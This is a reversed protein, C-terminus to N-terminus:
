RTSENVTVTMVGPLPLPAVGGLVINSAPVTIVRAVGVVDDVWTAIDTGTITGWWDWKMPDLRKELEEVVAAQVDAHNTGPDAEVTVTIGVTTYTPDIVHVSISGMVQAQLEAQIEEKIYEPLAYGTTDTVALSIHGIANTATGADYNNVAFARGVDERTIVADEFQEAYVLARVQRSLMARSREDFSANTEVPEGGRTRMSLEVSQIHMHYNVTQLPIGIPLDNYITGPEAAEIWAEGVVSESTIITTTETTFFDLAGSYDDLHYRLHTGAPITEMATGTSITFKAKGVAKRGQHRRVGYLGMLHEVVAAPARQYSYAVPGLIVALSELLTMEVSSPALHAESFMSRLHTRGANVHDIEVGVQWEPYQPSNTAAM